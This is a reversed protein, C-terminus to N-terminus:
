QMLPHSTSFLCSSMILLHSILLWSSLLRSILLCSSLLRPQDLSPQEISPQDLSPSPQRLSTHTLSLQNHQSPQIKRNPPLLRPTTSSSHRTVSQSHHINSQLHSPHLIAQAYSICDSVLLLWLTFTNFSRRHHVVVQLLHVLLSYMMRLTVLHLHLM